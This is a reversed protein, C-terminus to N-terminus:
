MFVKLTKIEIHVSTEADLKYVGSKEGKLPNQVYVLYIILQKAVINCGWVWAKVVLYFWCKTHHHGPNSVQSEATPCTIYIKVAGPGLFRGRIFSDSQDFLQWASNAELHWWCKLCIATYLIQWKSCIQVSATGPLQFYEWSRTWLRVVVWSSTNWLRPGTYLCCSYWTQM